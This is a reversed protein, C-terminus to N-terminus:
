SILSLAKPKTEDVFYIYKKGKMNGSYKKEYIVAKHM